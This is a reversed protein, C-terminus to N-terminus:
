AYVTGRAAAIRRLMPGRAALDFASREHRLRDTGKGSGRAPRLRDPYTELPASGHRGTPAVVLEAPTWSRALIAGLVVGTAIIATPDTPSVKGAIRWAPRQVREVVILEVGLTRIADRITGAIGALYAPPVDLLDDGVQRRITTSTLLRPRIDAGVRDLVALGTERAGPDVGLVIM